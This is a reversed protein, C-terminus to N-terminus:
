GSGVYGVRQCGLVYKSSRTVRPALPLLLERIEGARGIPAKAELITLRPTRVPFRRSPSRHGRQGYVTLDQDLTVRLPGVHAEYYTRQYEAILTPEGRLALRESAEAPLVGGLGAVIEAFSMAELSDRASLLFRTKRIGYDEREKIEFFLRERPFPGDYWRLRVKSRRAVGDLNARCSSLEADDFYLSVVRSTSQHHSVRRCNADLVARLKGADVDPVAFKVEHRLESAQAAFPLQLAFPKTERPM